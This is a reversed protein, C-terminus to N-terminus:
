GIVQGDDGGGLEGDSDAIYAWTRQSAQAQSYIRASIIDGVSAGHGVITLNNGSVGTVTKKARGAWDGPAFINVVDGVEFSSADASSYTDADVTLVNAGVIATVVASQAWGGVYAPFPRLELDLRNTQLDRKFGVVRCATGNAYTTPDIGRAFQSTLTVVSGVGIAIAGPMDARIACRWRVRPVGVRTRADAVIEAAAQARGGTGEVRVGPLDITLPQGSDSGAANTETACSVNVEEAKDDAGYNLKVTFARVTRGDIETTVPDRGNATVLDDDTLDLVSARPDTAGMAVLAVRWQDVGPVYVSAIQAGSALLLGGCQEAISKGRVAEYDQGMLPGPSSLGTFSGFDLARAPLNCGIPMVDYTGHNDGNGTGSVFLKLLYAGPHADYAAAVVQVSLAPDEPMQIVTRQNDPNVVAYWYATGGTEPHTGSTSGDIWMRVPDGSGTVEIQQREGGGTYVDADFPGIYPEGGQYWWAAPGQHGIRQSPSLGEHASVSEGWAVSQNAFRRATKEGRVDEATEGILWGGVIHNAGRMTAVDVVGAWPGDAPITAILAWGTGVPALSAHMMRKQRGGDAPDAWCAIVTQWAQPTNLVDLLQRPWAVIQDAAGAPDVITLPCRTTFTTGSTPNIIAPRSAAIANAVATVFPSILPTFGLDPNSWSIATDTERGAFTSIEWDMLTAPRGIADLQDATTTDVTVLGSVVDAATAVANLSVFSVRLALDLRDCKGVRFQHAGAVSKASRALPGVGLKYAAVASMPAIRLTCTPGDCIPVSEIVGEWYCEWAIPVGAGDLAAVHISAHRGRWTTVDSTVVPQENMAANVPHEQAAWDDAGRVCGTFRYLNGATGNGAAADAWIVEQGIHIVGPLDWASVDRTVYVTASGTLAPVHDLSALLNVRNTSSAPGAVRMLYDRPNIRAGALTRADTSRITVTVSPQGAVPSVDDIRAEVPGVDLVADLLDVPARATSFDEHYVTGAAVNTGPAALDCFRYPLGNIAVCYAVRRRDIYSFAM